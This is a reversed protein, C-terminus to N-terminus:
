TLLAIALAVGAAGIGLMMVIGAILVATAILMEIFESM